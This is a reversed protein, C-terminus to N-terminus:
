CSQCRSKSKSLTTRTSTHSDISNGPSLRSGKSDLWGELERHTEPTISTVRHGRRGNTLRLGFQQPLIPSENPFHWVPDLVLVFKGNTDTSKSEPGHTDNEVQVFGRQIMYYFNDPHASKGPKKRQFRRDNWYADFSLKEVVVGAWRVSHPELGLSAGSFAVVFDGKVAKRRIRPKCVALTTKPREFNPAAGGDKVIVYSFAKM